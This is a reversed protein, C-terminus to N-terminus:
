PLKKISKPSNKKKEDVLENGQGIDGSQRIKKDEESMEIKEPSICQKKNRIYRYKLHSYKSM